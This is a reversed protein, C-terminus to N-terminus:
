ETEPPLQKVKISKVTVESGAASYVSLPKDLQSYDGTHEFRLQDDVYISQKKPTVVWRITVYKNVPILGAGFKHKGNALGGDVRLQNRDKEWNFILQDAAYGLRLNTSNTKAEVVIEVPPKFTAKTTISGDKKLKMPTGTRGDVLASIQEIFAPAPEVAFSLIPSLSLSAALIVKKIM